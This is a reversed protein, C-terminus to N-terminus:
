TEYPLLIGNNLTILYRGTTIALGAKVHPTKSVFNAARGDGAAAGEGAATCDATGATAGATVTATPWDTVAM